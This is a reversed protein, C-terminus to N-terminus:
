GASGSDASRERAVERSSRRARGRHRARALEQRRDQRKCHRAQQGPLRFEQRRAPCGGRRRTGGAARPVQRRLGDREALARRSRTSSRKRWKVSPASRCSPVHQRRARPDGRPQHGGRLRRRARACREGRHPRAGQAGAEPAGKALADGTELAFGVIISEARRADRTARLIDATPEFPIALAGEIRSRKSASFESPRYDAPAAAM